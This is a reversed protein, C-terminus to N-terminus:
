RRSGRRRTSGGARRDAAGSRRRRLRIVLTVVSALVLAGAVAAGALAGTPRARAPRDGPCVADAAVVARDTITFRVDLGFTELAGSPGVLKYDHAEDDAGGIRSADIAVGPSDEVKVETEGPRDLAFRDRLLATHAGRPPALCLWAVLDISFAGATASPTGLGVVIQSWAIPRHAGDIALDVAAAIERAVRDGFAQTEADDIAGDHNADIARRMAAGPVEGYFVTYALRVRDGLLTLKLYRNNDGIAPAVHADGRSPALAAIALAVGITRTVVAPWM